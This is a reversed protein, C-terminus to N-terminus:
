CSGDHFTYGFSGVGDGRKIADIMQSAQGKTLAGTVNVGLTALYSLQKQSAPHEQWPGTYELSAKILAFDEDDVEIEEQFREAAKWEVVKNFRKNTYPYRYTTGNHTVIM